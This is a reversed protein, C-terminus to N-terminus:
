LKNLQFKQIDEQEEKVIKGKSIRKKEFIGDYLM